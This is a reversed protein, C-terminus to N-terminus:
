TKELYEHAIAEITRPSCGECRNNVLLFAEAGRDVARKMLRVVDSRMAANPEQLRDYPAFRKVSDTHSLHLPTLLRAVYFNAHLGGAAAAARMQELLPPMRHRHNFCHTAAYRNLLEFYSACLYEPNRVEVAYRYDRPLDALFRELQCFFTDRTCVSPTLHPFQLIFPGIRERVETTIPGLVAECFLQSNLFDPNVKGALAGYRPHLPYERVTVREWVKCAWQFDPPLQSHYRTLQEASLPKYLGSDIGVTRFLPYAGYEALSERTFAAKSKYQHKYVLGQWGPYNWSSGGFRLTKPIKAALEAVEQLRAASDNPPPCM